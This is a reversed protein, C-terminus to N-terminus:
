GRSLVFWLFFGYISLVIAVFLAWWILFNKWGSYQAREEPPLNLYSRNWIIHEVKERPPPPTLLSTVIMVIMCFSWSILASHQYAKKYPTLWAFLDWLPPVDVSFINPIRLSIGKQLLWLFVFGSVITTVAAIANARRWLLGLLFVV